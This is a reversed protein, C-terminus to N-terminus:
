DRLVVELSTPPEIAPQDRMSEVPRSRLARQLLSLASITSALVVVAAVVAFSTLDLTAPVSHGFVLLRGAPHLLVDVLFGLITGVLGTVIAVPTTERLIRARMWRNSAGITRLVGVAPLRDAFARAQAAHIGFAVLLALLVAIGYAVVQVSTTAQAIASSLYDHPVSGSGSRLLLSIIREDTPPDSHIDVRALGPGSVHLSATSTQLFALMPAINSTKLRISHYFHAGLGTLARATPYDVVLEDNATTETRYIGGVQAFAIRPLASGVLTVSTGRDLGLRSALGEGAFAWRDTLPSTQVWVGGEISLFAAPDAGRVLVAQGHITGPALIEPSVLQVGPQSTVNALLSDNVSALGSGQTIVYVDGAM